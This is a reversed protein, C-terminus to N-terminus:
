SQQAQALLKQDLEALSRVFWIEHGANCEYVFDRLASSANSRGSIDGLIVVRKRYTVFKQLVEGAIRTKLDFFDESLLNIPIIILEPQCSSAESIMEIAQRDSRLQEEIELFEAVPVGHLEYCQVRTPM